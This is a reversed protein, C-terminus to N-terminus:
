TVIGVDQRMQDFYKTRIYGLLTSFPRLAGKGENRCHTLYSLNQHM